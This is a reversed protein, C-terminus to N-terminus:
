VMVCSTPIVIVESPIELWASTPSPRTRYPDPPREATSWGSHSRQRDSSGPWISGTLRCRSNVGSSRASSRTTVPQTISPSTSTVLKLSPWTARRDTAPM